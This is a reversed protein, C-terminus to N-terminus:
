SKKEEEVKEEETYESSWSGGRYIWHKKWNVESKINKIEKITIEIVM